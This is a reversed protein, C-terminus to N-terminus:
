YRMILQLILNGEQIEVVVLRKAIKVGIIVVDVQHMSVLEM